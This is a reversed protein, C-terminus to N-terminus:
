ALELDSLVRKTFFKRGKINLFFSNFYLSSDCLGEDNSYDLIKIDRDVERLFDYIYLEKFRPTYFRSLHQTVPPIVLVPLYEREICFDIMERMVEIRYTRGELNEHTLPAELDLINFQRKWGEIWKQADDQLQKEDMSNKEVNALANQRDVKSTEKKLFYKILAKIAPKGFLIPFKRYLCAKKYLFPEFVEGQQDLNLYKFADIVSTKKNIGTFPMITILVYGGKRLISHYHRLLNYDELLTQPQQAWNMAKISIGDYDFAWKGSSSGLNVLDYNRSENSRYWENGPYIKHEYDVFLDKYWQTKKLLESGTAYAVVKKLISVVKSMLENM